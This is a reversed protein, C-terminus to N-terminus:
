PLRNLLSVLNDEIFDPAPSWNRAEAESSAGSLVLATPCGLAQGGAIDTKLRDGIVLTERPSLSMRELAVRYMEPQPKGIITAPVDTAAELAALIAGTGPLAGEPSPLTPDPNTAIFPKGQRIFAAALRLKEYTFERDLGVVVAVPEDVSHVFDSEKLAQALGSEGIMYVPGGQPYRQHLYQATAQASNIVWQVPVEVGFNKLKETYQEVSRTANNTALIYILGRRDIEAFVHPLDVISQEGRWLVGDMDIILGEIKQNTNTAMLTGEVIPTRRAGSTLRWGAM